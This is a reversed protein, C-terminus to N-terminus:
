GNLDATFKQKDQNYRKLCSVCICDKNLSNTPLLAILSAPINENQCWCASSNVDCQNEQLCFPCSKLNM